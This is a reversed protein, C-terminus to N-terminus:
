ASCGDALHITTTKTHMTAPAAPSQPPSHDQTLAPPPPSTPSSRYARELRVSCALPASYHCQAPLTTSIDPQCCVHTSTTTTTWNPLPDQRSAQRRMMEDFDKEREEEEKRGKMMVCDAVRMSPVTSQCPAQIEPRMSTIDKRKRRKTRAQGPQHLCSAKKASSHNKQASTVRAQGCSVSRLARPCM